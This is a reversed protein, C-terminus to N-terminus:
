DKKDDVWFVMKNKEDDWACEVYGQAALQSMASQYIQNRVEDFIEHFVETDIIYKSDRDIDLSKEAIISKVQFLTIINDLEEESYKTTRGVYEEALSTAATTRMLVAFEETDTISYKPM